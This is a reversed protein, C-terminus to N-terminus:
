AREREKESLNTHDFLALSFDLTVERSNKSTERESCSKEDAEHWTFGRFKLGRAGRCAFDSAQYYFNDLNCLMVM